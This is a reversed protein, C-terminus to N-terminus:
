PKEGFCGTLLGVSLAGVVAVKGYKM